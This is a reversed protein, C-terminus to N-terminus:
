SRSAVRPEAERLTVIGRGGTEGRWATILAAAAAAAAAWPVRLPRARRETPVAPDLVTVTPVDMTERLRADELQGSLLVFLQQYLRVDRMQRGLESEVTPINAIQQRLQGLESRTQVVRENTPL